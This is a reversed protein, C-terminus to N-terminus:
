AASRPRRAGSACSARRPSARAAPPHRRDRLGGRACIRTRGGRGAAEDLRRRALRDARRAALAAARAVLLRALALRRKQGASLYAPRLHRGSRISRSARAAGGRRPRRSGGARRPLAGLVRPEGRGDPQSKIGNLHGVYHCQEGASASPRRRRRPPHTGAAPRLFGAIRACCRRRARATRARSCLRRAPGVRSRCGTSLLARRRARRGSKRRHAARRKIM